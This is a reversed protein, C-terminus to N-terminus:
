PTWEKYEVVVPVEQGLDYRQGALTLWLQMPSGDVVVDAVCTVEPTGAHDYKIARVTTHMNAVPM